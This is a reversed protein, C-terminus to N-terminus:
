AHMLARMDFSAIRMLALLLTLYGAVKGLHAVMAFSDHPARSFLMAAHGMLLLVAMLTIAPLVREAARMRWSCWAIAAWSAPVLILRPRTVAFFGPQQYPAVHQFLVFIAGGVLLAPAIFMRVDRVRRRLLWLSAGVGIPLLYAAPPWTSPRLMPAASAIP